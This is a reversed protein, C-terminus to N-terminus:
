AAVRLDCPRSGDSPPLLDPAPHSTKAMFIQWYHEPPAPIKSLPEIGSEIDADIHLDITAMLRSVAEEREDAQAAIDHELCQAVWVGEEKLLLVHLTSPARYSSRRM